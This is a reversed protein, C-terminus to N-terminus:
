PAAPPYWDDGRGEPTTDLVNWLAWMTDMHRPDRDGGAYLLETGWFHHVTGARRVFVNAMPMQAGDPTEAFYDAQFTNGASSLMPLNSWGRERAFAALREIPSRATVALNARMAIHRANGDLGDLFASCMPCPAEDHPGFMFGYVFLTSRGGAFLESLRVRRRRGDDGLADFAYDENVCGGLPLRRRQAAVAEVRTRLEIEVALLEDRARRYEASENPYRLTTM